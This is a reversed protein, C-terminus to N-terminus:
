GSGDQTFSFHRDPIVVMQRLRISASSHSFNFVSNQDCAALPFFVKVWTIKDGKVSRGAGDQFFIFDPM